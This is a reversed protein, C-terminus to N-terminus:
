NLMPVLHMKSYEYVFEGNRNVVFATNSVGKGKERRNAISGAVININYDKALKQIFSKVPELNDAAVEEIRELAFGTTWTEPLVVTDTPSLDTREFMNEVKKMNEKVDGFAIDFQFSQINMIIREA